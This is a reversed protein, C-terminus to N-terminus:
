GKFYGRLSTLDHTKISINALWSKVLCLVKIWVFYHLWPEFKARSIVGWVPWITHELLFPPYGTSSWVSLRFGPNMHVPNSGEGATNTLNCKGISITASWCMPLCLVDIWVFGHLWPKFKARSIVGQVPWIAHELLFPPQGQMPLCLVDIWVLSIHWYSLAQPVQYWLAQPVLYWLSQPVVMTGCAKHYWTGCANQYQCVFHFNAGKITILQPM